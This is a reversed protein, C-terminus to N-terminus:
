FRKKLQGWSMTEVPVPPDGATYCRTETNLQSTPPNGLFVRDNGFWLSSGSFEQATLKVRFAAAPIFVALDISGPNNFGGITSDFSLNVLEVGSDCDTVVISGFAAGDETRDSVHVTYNGGGNNILQIGYFGNPFGFADNPTGGLNSASDVTECGCAFYCRTETNLQSTPPNGLFVRDDGFWLSSGSFEQTTLTVSFNTAPINVALDLNGPTAFTGITSDFGLNVLEIGSDCDTVVISGFAAGDDTRDSVHVTYNGGGNNILQIGYFGNPFGYADKATGELVTDSETSNCMCSQAFTIQPSFLSAMLM